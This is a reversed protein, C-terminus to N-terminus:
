ATPPSVSHGSAEPGVLSDRASSGEQGWMGLSVVGSLILIGGAVMAPTLPTGLALRATLASAIPEVTSLLATDQPALYRLSTLYMRFALATGVVAVFLVLLVMQGSLDGLSLAWPPTWLSSAAGGFLMSWAVVSSPALKAMLRRPYATGFALAWGSALGWLIGGPSAGEMGGMGRWVLLCTGGLAALAALLRRIGPSKRTRLSTFALLWVIGLSQLFTAMPASSAAIAKLYTLQVAWLGFVSYVALAVLDQRRRFPSWLDEGAAWTMFVLVMGAVLMRVTVLWTSSVAHHQFLAQAATGSVGWAAGAMWVMLTARRRAPPRVPV